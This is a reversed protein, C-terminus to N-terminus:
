SELISSAALTSYSIAHLWDVRPRKLRNKMIFESLAVLVEQYREMTVKKDAM